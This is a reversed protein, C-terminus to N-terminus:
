VVKDLELLHQIRLSCGQIVPLSARKGIPDVIFAVKRGRVLAVIFALIYHVHGM